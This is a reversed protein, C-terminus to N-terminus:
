LVLGSLVRHVHSRKLYMVEDASKGFILFVGCSLGKPVSHATALTTQFKAVGRKTCQALSLQFKAVGRKTGPVLSTEDGSRMRCM